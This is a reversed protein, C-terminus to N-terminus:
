VPRLDGGLEELNVHLKTLITEPTKLNCIGCILGVGLMVSGYQVAVLTGSEGETSFPEGDNCVVKVFEDSMINIWGNSGQFRVNQVLCPYLLCGTPIKNLPSNCVKTGQVRKYTELTELVTSGAVSAVKKSVGKILATNTIGAVTCKDLSLLTADVPDNDRLCELNFKTDQVTARALIGETTKMAAQAGVPIIGHTSTLLYANPDGGSIFTCELNLYPQLASNNYPTLLIYQPFACPKWYGLDIFLSNQSPPLYLTERDFM